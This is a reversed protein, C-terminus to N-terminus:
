SGAAAACCQGTHQRASPGTLATRKNYPPLLELCAITYLRISQVARQCLYKTMMNRSWLKRIWEHCEGTLWFAVIEM